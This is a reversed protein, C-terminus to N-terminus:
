GLSGARSGAAGIGCLNATYDRQPAAIAIVVRPANVQLDGCFAVHELAGGRQVKRQRLIVTGALM